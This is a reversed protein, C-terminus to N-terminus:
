RRLVMLSAPVVPMTREPDSDADQRFEEFGAELEDAPLHEFTSLARTSIREYLTRLTRPQEASILRIEQDPVLYAARAM